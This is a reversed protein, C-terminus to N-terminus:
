RFCLTRKINTLGDIYEAPIPCKPGEMQAFNVKSAMYNKNEIIEGLTKEDIQDEYYTVSVTKFEPNITCATVGRTATLKDSILTSDMQTTKKDLNFVVLNIPKLNIKEALSPKEWNAWVLLSVFTMLILLGILRLSKKLITKM